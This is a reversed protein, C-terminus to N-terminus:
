VGRRPFGLNVLLNEWWLYRKHYRYLITFLIAAGLVLWNWSDSPRHIKQLIALMLFAILWFVTVGRRAVSKRRIESEEDSEKCEIRKCQDWAWYLVFILALVTIERFVNDYSV